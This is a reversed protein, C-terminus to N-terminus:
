ACARVRNQWKSAISGPWRMEVRTPQSQYITVTWITVGGDGWSMIRRGDGQITSPAGASALALGICEEVQGPTKNSEYAIQPTRQDLDGVTACACLTCAVLAPLLQRM